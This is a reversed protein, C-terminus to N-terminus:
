ELCSVTMVKGFNYKKEKWRMLFVKCLVYRNLFLCPFLLNLLSISNYTLLNVKKEDELHLNLLLFREVGVDFVDGCMVM